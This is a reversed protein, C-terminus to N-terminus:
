SHWTHGATLGGDVLIVAGTVFTSADSILFEHVAAVEEAEGWRKLATMEAMREYTQPASTEVRRSM